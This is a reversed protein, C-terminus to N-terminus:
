TSIETSNKYKVFILRREPAKGSCIKNSFNISKNQELIPQIKEYFRNIKLKSGYVWVFLSFFVFFSVNFPIIHVFTM